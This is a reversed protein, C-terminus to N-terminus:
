AMSICLSQILEEPLGIIKIAEFPCKNICIGCGACLEESIAPKGSDGMTIAEVGTRVKPCYKICETNCKKPQCHDRLLVAIRM